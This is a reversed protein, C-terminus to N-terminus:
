LELVEFVSKDFLTPYHTIIIIPESYKNLFNIFDKIALEDLGNLPEDLIVLDSQGVFTILIALKQKNGKSLKSIPLDLPVNFYTMLEQNLRDNKLEEITKIFESVVLNSPLLPAEELYNIKNVQSKILGSDPKIYKTLLKILTSKGSGNSGVVILKTQKKIILDFTKNLYSKKVAKLEVLNM